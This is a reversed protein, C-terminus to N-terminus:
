QSGYRDVLQRARSVAIDADESVRPQVLEGLGPLEGLGIPVLRSRLERLQSRAAGVFAAREAKLDDVGQVLEERDRVLLAYKEGEANAPPLEAIPVEVSGGDFTIRRRAMTELKTGITALQAYHHELADATVRDNQLLTDLYMMGKVIDLDGAAMEPILGIVWPHITPGEMKVGHVVIGHPSDGTSGLLDEIRDLDALIARAVSRIRRRADRDQQAGALRLSGFFALMVAVLPAVASVIAVVASESM